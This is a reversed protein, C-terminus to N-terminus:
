LGLLDLSYVEKTEQTSVTQKNAQKNIIKNGLESSLQFSASAVVM